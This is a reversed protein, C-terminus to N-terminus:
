GRPAKRIALRIIKGFAVASVAAFLLSPLSLVLCDVTDGCFGLGFAALASIWVAWALGFVSSTIAIARPWSRDVYRLAVMGLVGLVATPVLDFLISLTGEDAHGRALLTVVAVAEVVALGGALGWLVALKRSM